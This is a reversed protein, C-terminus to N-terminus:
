HMRAWLYLLVLLLLLQGVMKVLPGSGFGAQMDPVGAAVGRRYQVAFTYVLVLIAAATLWTAAAFVHRWLINGTRLVRFDTLYITECAGDGTDNRTVSTYRTPPGGKLGYAALYGKLHIQDGPKARMVARQIRKDDALLHNNSLCRGMFQLDARETHMKAYCRFTGSKFGMEKYADTRVNFGYIVCIDKINLADHWLFKHTVDWWGTADYQSVVLGWLEYDHMPTVHYSRGAVTADFALAETSKAQIPMRYLLPHIDDKDPLRNKFFISVVILVMGAVLAVFAANRLMAETETLELPRIEPEVTTQAGPENDGAGEPMGAAPRLKAFVVGCRVCEPSEPQAQGCKPCTFPPRHPVAPPTSPASGAERPPGNVRCVAGAKRLYAAYREATERDRCKKIVVSKGSFLRDMHGTGAPWLAALNSRVQEQTFGALIGGSFVVKFPPDSM